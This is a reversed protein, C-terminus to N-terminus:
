APTVFCDESPEGDSPYAVALTRATRQAREVYGPTTFHIGDPIYWGDHVESAWDYVRLNPYTECADRLADNWKAMEDNAWPGSALRSKVTLWMAPQGDIEEMLMDIRDPLGVVGGVAQNAVENTGMAFVWCGDYGEDMRSATAEAANPQDKYREVISRAGLIDTDVDEVGVKRYQADIRERRRLGYEPDMLGISTSDGVHVVSQCSTEWRNSVPPSDEPSQEEDSREVKPPLPPDDPSVTAGSAVEEHSGVIFSCSTLTVVAAASFALTGRALTPAARMPSPSAIPRRFAEVFGRQRIPDELLRWSLAALALTLTVQLGVLPVSVGDLLSPPTFAVVPMHWLYIGYSREGVWRLPGIGLASGLRSGPYSVVAVVLATALALLLFGGRYLSPSYFSTSVIMWLMVGLAALGVGDVAIRVGTPPLERIRSPRYVLALAAGVLLEGVRTDTGEYARTNDLGPHALIAMLVFSAVALLGTVKAVDILRGALRSLLLLLLLPWVLYFQEEISLSWLHELPQPGVFYDFYSGDSAITAWNNVYFIASVTEGWRTPLAGADTIATVALVVVLVVVLAPLLRRARHLWFRRLELGGTREWTSVLISTILFGSLTFFISVGLLGGSMQPIAFHYGLVAIVALARIGDLGPVYTTRHDVPRPL